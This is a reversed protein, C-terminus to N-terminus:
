YVKVIVSSDVVGSVCVVYFNLLEEGLLMDEFVVGFSVSMM